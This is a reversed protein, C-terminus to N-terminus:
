EETGAASEVVPVPEVTTSRSSHFGASGNGVRDSGVRQPSPRRPLDAGHRGPDLPGRDRKGEPRAPQRPHRPCGGRDARPHNGPLFCGFFSETALSAKTIGLLVPDYKAPLENRALVKVNEELVRQQEAQEGHLYKSNGADTIEVKRLMQRTIVEIHKDNIKM